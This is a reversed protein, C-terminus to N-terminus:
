ATPAQTLRRVRPFYDHILSALPAEGDGALWGRAVVQLAGMAISVAMAAEIEADADSLGPRTADLRQRVIEAYQARAETIRMMNLAALEPTADLLRRRQRFLERDPEADTWVEAMMVAFAEVDSVGTAAVFAAVQAEDPMPKGEGLVATERSPFYNYFTRPSIGAADCIMDVTVADYGHELGLAIAARRTADRTERRKRERLGEPKTDSAADPARVAM